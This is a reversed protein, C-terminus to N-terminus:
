EEKSFSDLAAVVNSPLYSPLNTLGLTMLKDSRWKDIFLIERKELPRLNIRVGLCM